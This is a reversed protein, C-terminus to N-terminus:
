VFKRILSGALAPTIRKASMTDKVVGVGGGGVNNYLTRNPFTCNMQNMTASYLFRLSLEFNLSLVQIIVLKYSILIDNRAFVGMSLFLTVYCTSNRNTQLNEGM